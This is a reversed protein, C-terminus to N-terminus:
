KGAKKSAKGKAISIVDRMASWYGDDWARAYESNVGGMSKKKLKEIEKELEKISVVKISELKTIRKDLADLRDKNSM